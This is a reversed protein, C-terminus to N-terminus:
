HMIKFVLEKLLEGEPALSGSGKSKLDYERLLSIIDMVKNVPYNKAAAQYERLFFKRIGLASAANEDSKNKLSHFLLLKGFFYFLSSLTLVLPNDRPNRSFYFVIRNAKLIDRSALANNLEFSNYDKSIGINQEVQLATILDSGRPMVLHLKELENVIKGIDSGLFDGLMAAAKPEIQIGKDQLYDTIWAPIQYDRIKEADFVVAKEELLKYFRTRKDIRKYKYNIVLITSHLPQSIYHSLKEVERLYQAEKIIVVQRNGTMPFRRAYETVTKYDMDKGYLIQLNFTKESENLANEEITDSLIDIFYPEEGMLFYVPSFHRNKLESLIQEYKM